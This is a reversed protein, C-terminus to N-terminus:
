WNSIKTFTVEKEYASYKLIAVGPFQRICRYLGLCQVTVQTKHVLNAWLKHFRGTFHHDYCNKLRPCFTCCFNEKQQLNHFSLPMPRLWAYPWLNWFIHILPRASGWCLSSPQADQSESYGPQLVSPLSRCAPGVPSLSLSLSRESKSSEMSLKSNNQTVDTTAM